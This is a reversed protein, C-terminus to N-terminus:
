SVPSCYSLTYLTKIQGKEWAQAIFLFKYVM